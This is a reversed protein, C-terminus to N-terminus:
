TNENENASEKWLYKYHDIAEIISEKTREISVENELFSNLFIAFFTSCWIHAAIEKHKEIMEFTLRQAEKCIIQNFDNNNM